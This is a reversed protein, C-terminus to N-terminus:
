NTELCQGRNNINPPPYCAVRAKDQKEQSSVGLSTDGNSEAHTIPILMRDICTSPLCGSLM